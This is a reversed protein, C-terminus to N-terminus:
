DERPEDTIEAEKLEEAEDEADIAEFNFIVTGKIPDIKIKEQWENVVKFYLKYLEANGKRVAHNYLSLVVNKTLGIAWSRAEILPDRERIRKNWDSLTDIHINYREAFATQTRIKVLDIVIPDDFGFRDALEEESVQSLISVPLSRWLAYLEFLDKYRDPTESKVITTETKKPSGKKM